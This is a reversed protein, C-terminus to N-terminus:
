SALMALKDLEVAVKFGPKQKKSFDTKLCDIKEIPNELVDAEISRQQRMQRTGVMATRINPHRSRVEAEVIRALFRVGVRVEGGDSAMGVVDAALVVAVAVVVAAAAVIAVNECESGRQQRVEVESM